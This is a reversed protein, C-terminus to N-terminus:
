LSLLTPSPHQLCNTITVLLLPEHRIRFTLSQHKVNLVDGVYRLFQCIYHNPRLCKQSQRCELTVLMVHGYVDSDFDVARLLVETKEHNLGWHTLIWNLLSHLQTQLGTRVQYPKLHCFKCIPRMEDLKAKKPLKLAIEFNWIIFYFHRLYKFYHLFWACRQM